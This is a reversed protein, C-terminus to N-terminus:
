SRPRCRTAIGRSAARIYIYPARALPQFRERRIERVQRLRGPYSIPNGKHASHRADNLRSIRSIRLAEPRESELVRQVHAAPEAVVACDRDHTRSCGRLARHIVRM